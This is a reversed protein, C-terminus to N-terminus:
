NYINHLVAQLIDGAGKYCRNESLIPFLIDVIFLGLLRSNPIPSAIFKKVLHNIRDIDQKIAARSVQYIFSDDDFEIDKPEVLPIYKTFKQLICLKLTLMKHNLLPIIELCKLKNNTVLYYLGFLYTRQEVTLSHSKLNSETVIFQKIHTKMVLNEFIILKTIEGFGKEYFYSIELQMKEPSIENKCLKLSSLIFYYKLLDYIFDYSHHNLYSFLEYADKYYRRQYKYIGHILVYVSKDKLSFCGSYEHLSDFLIDIDFEKNQSLITYLACVLLSQHDTRLKYDKEISLPEGKLHSVGLMLIDTTYDLASDMLNLSKKDILKEKLKIPLPVKNNEIKSLYTISLDNGAKQKLTLGSKKREYYIHSGYPDVDKNVVEINLVNDNSFM